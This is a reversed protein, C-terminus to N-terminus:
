TYLANGLLAVTAWILLDNAQTFQKRYSQQLLNYVM